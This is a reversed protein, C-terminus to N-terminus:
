CGVGKLNRLRLCGQSQILGVVFTLTNTGGGVSSTYTAAVSGASAQVKDETTLGWNGAVDQTRLTFGTGKTPLTGGTTIITSGWITDGAITTTINGSTVADTGTGPNSQGQGTFGDTGTVNSYEDWIVQAYNVNSGFNVTIASPGNNIGFLCFLTTRQNAGVTVSQLITYGNGKDDTISSIQNGAASYAAQGCVAHNAGIVSGTAPPSNVEGTGAGM